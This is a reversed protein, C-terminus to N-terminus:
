YQQITQQAQKVKEQAELCQQKYRQVQSLLHNVHQKSQYVWNLAEIALRLHQYLTPRSVRARQAIGSMSQRPEGGFAQLIAAAICIIWEIAEISLQQEQQIREGIRSGKRL